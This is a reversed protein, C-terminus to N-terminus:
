ERLLDKVQADLEKPDAFLAHPKGELPAFAAKFRENDAKEDTVNRIFVALVQDQHDRALKGYIEPDAEGSDGVLVFRRKPYRKMLREIMPKKFSEQDAFLNLVSKDTLRYHKLHWTGGPFGAEAHWAALPEYLQWPSGSVLHFATGKAAFRKYLDAMGPAAQFPRFFTNKLMKDRDRVETIRITDDVDSVVSLGEADFWAFRGAFVRKDDDGTVATFSTWGDKTAPGHRMRAAEDASLKLTEAFHGNGESEGADYVTGGIRVQLEQDEEDDVLFLRAIYDFRRREDESGGTGVVKELVKVIGARKISDPEPEYIRGHIEAKWEKGDLWASTPYLLVDEDDDIDSAARVSAAALVLILVTWPFHRRM